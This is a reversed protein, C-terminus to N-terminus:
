CALLWDILLGKAPSIDLRTRDPPGATCLRAWGQMVPMPLYAPHCLSILTNNTWAGTRTWLSNVTQTLFDCHQYLHNSFTLLLKVKSFCGFAHDTTRFTKCDPYPGTPTNDFVGPLNCAECVSYQDCATPGCSARWYIPFQFLVVCFQDKVM